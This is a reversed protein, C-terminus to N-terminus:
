TEVEFVLRNILKHDATVKCRVLIVVNAFGVNLGYLTNQTIESCVSIIERYLM